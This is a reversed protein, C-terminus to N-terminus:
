KGKSPLPELRFEIPITIWYNVPEKGNMAPIFTTHLVADTAANELLKSDSRYVRLARVQGESSVLVRLEVIGEINNRRAIEPYVLRSHLQILDYKPTSTVAVYEDPGPLTRAGREKKSPPERLAAAPYTIGIGIQEDGAGADGEEFYFAVSLHLTDAVEKGELRAGTAPVGRLAARVAERFGPTPAAISRARGKGSRDVVYVVHATGTAQRRLEAAPFSIRSRLAATDIMARRTEGQRALTDVASRWGPSPVGRRAEASTALLLPTVVLLAAMRIMPSRASGGGGSSTAM